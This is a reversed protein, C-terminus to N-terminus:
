TYMLRLPDDDEVRVDGVPGEDANLWGSVDEWGAPTAAGPGDASRDRIVGRVVDTLQAAALAQEATERLSEEAVVASVGAHDLIYSM